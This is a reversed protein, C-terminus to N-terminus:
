CPDPVSVGPLSELVVLVGLTSRLDELAPQLQSSAQQHHCPDCAARNQWPPFRVFGGFPFTCFTAEVGETRGLHSTLGM